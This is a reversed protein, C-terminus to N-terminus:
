KGILTDYVKKAYGRSVKLFVEQGNWRVALRFPKQEFGIIQISKNIAISQSIQLFDAYDHERLFQSLNSTKLYKSGDTTFIEIYDGMEKQICIVKDCPITKYFSQGDKRQQYVKILPVKETTPTQNVKEYLDLATQVQGAIGEFVFPKVVWGYHNTLKAEDYKEPYATTYVIPCSQISDLVKALEIGNMETGLNIDMLVLDPNRAKAVEFENKKLRLTLANLESIIDEVVLVKIAKM